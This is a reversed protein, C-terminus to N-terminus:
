ERTLHFNIVRAREGENLLNLEIEDPGIFEGFIISEDHDAIYITEGDYSIVGSFNEEIYTGDPLTRVKYGTFVQENQETVNWWQPGFDLFGNIKDHGISTGTWVGVINPISTTPTVEPSPTAATTAPTTPATGTCGASFVVIAMILAFLVFSHKRFDM